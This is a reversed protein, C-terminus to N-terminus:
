ERVPISGVGITRRLGAEVRQVQWYYKQPLGGLAGNLLGSRAATVTVYFLGDSGDTALTIGNGLSLTFLAATVFEPDSYLAFTLTWGTIPDPTVGDALTVLFPIAPWDDGAFFILDAIHTEVAMRPNDPGARM